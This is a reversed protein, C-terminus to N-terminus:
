KANYLCALFSYYSVLATTCINPDYDLIYKGKVNAGSGIIWMGDPEAKEEGDLEVRIHARGNALINIPVQTFYEVAKKGENNLRTVLNRKNAERKAPTTGATWMISARKRLAESVLDPDLMWTDDDFGEPRKCQVKLYQVQAPELNGVPSHHEAQILRILAQYINTKSPLKMFWRKFRDKDINFSRTKRLIADNYRLLIRLQLKRHDTNEDTYGYRECHAKYGLKGGVKGAESFIDYDSIYDKRLIAKRLRGIYLM